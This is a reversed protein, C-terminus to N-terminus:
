RRLLERQFLYFQRATLKSDPDIRDGVAYFIEDPKGQAWHKDLEAVSRFVPIYRPDIDKPNFTLGHRTTGTQIEEPTYGLLGKGIGYLERAKARGEPSANKDADEALRVLSVPQGRLAGELRLESFDRDAKLKKADERYAAFDGKDSPIRYVARRTQKPVADGPVTDRSVADETTTEVFGLGVSGRSTFSKVQATAEVAKATEKKVQQQAHQKSFERLLSRAHVRAKVAARDVASVKEMPVRLPDGIARIEAELAETFAATVQMEHAEKLDAPLDDWLKIAASEAAGTEGFNIVNTTLDLGEKTKTTITRSYLSRKFGSIDQEDIAGYLADLKDIQQALRTRASPPIEGLNYLANLRDRGEALKEKSLTKISTELESIAREDARWRDEGDFERHVADAFGQSKLPDGPNAKRFEDILRFRDSPNLRGSNDLRLQNLQEAAANEGQMVQAERDRRLRNFSEHEAYRSEREIKARLDSFVTKAVATQSLLGGKGTVDVREMEDLLNRAEGFKEESILKELSPVVVKTVFFGNVESKPLEHRIADLHANISSHLAPADDEAASALQFLIESGEDAMRSEAARKFEATYGEASRQRFGAIVGQATDDFAARAFFDDPHLQKSVEAYTDAVIREPDTRGEVRMAEPLRQTLKEQFVSQALDRGVRSRFGREFAPLRVHSVQGADVAQKITAEIEGIRSAAQTKQAELEGLAMADREERASADRLMVRLEDNFGAFADSLERLSSRQPVPTAGIPISLPRATPTLGPAAGELPSPTPKRAAM